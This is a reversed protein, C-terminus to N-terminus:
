LLMKVIKDLKVRGFKKLLKRVNEPYDTLVELDSYHSLVQTHQRIQSLEMEAKESLEAKPDSILIANEADLRWARPNLNNGTLLIYRNDVWVGKLHYSNEGDKWLRIILQQNQIYFDLRKAFARM